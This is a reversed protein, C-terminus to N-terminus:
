AAALKRRAPLSARVRRLASLALLPYALAGFAWLHLGRLATRGDHFAACIPRGAFPVDWVWLSLPLFALVLPLALPRLRPLHLGVSYTALALLSPDHSLWRVLVAPSYDPGYDNLM